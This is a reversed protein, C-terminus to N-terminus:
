STVKEKNAFQVLAKQYDIGQYNIHYGNAYIRGRSDYSHCIYFKNNNFLMLDISRKLKSIFSKEGKWNFPIDLIDTNVSLPVQSVRNIIDLCYEGKSHGQNLIINKKWTLYGSDSNNTFVPKELNPLPYQFTNLEEQLDKPLDLVTIVIGDKYYLCNSNILSDITPLIDEGYIGVLAEIPQRKAVMMHVLINFEEQTYKQGELINKLYSKIPEWKNYKSYMEELELQM